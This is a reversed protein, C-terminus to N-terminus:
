AGATLVERFREELRSVAADWSWKEAVVLAGQEGLRRAYGRDEVLRVIAAGMAAPDSEVLLGNVGDVVTERVGGEAVAVVPTGCANAELPAFGFPELRPAYAMVLARNLLEVLEADSVKTRLEFDVGLSQALCQMEDSYSQWAVNAVWILRPRPPPVKGLAEIVFEVNKHLLFAGLGVVTNERELGQDVFKDTDVGLYCVKADLGYARLL